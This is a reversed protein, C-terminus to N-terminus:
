VASLERKAISSPMGVDAAVTYNNLMEQLFDQVARSINSHETLISRPLMM